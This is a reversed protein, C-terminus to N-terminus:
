QCHRPATRGGRPTMYNVSQLNLNVQIQSTMKSEISVLQNINHGQAIGNREFTTGQGREEQKMNKEQAKDLGM